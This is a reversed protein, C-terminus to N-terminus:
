AGRLLESGAGWIAQGGPFCPHATKARPAVASGPKLVMSSEWSSEPSGLTPLAVPLCITAWGCPAEWRGGYRFRGGTWSAGEEALGHTWPHLFHCLRRLLQHLLEWPCDGAHGQLCPSLSEGHPQVPPSGAKRQAKAEQASAVGEAPGM